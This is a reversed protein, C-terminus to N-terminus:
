NYVENLCFPYMIQFTASNSATASRQIANSVLDTAVDSNDVRGATSTLWVKADDAGTAVDGAFSGWIGFWGFSTTANVAAQAIAVAGKSNAVTRTTVHAEDYVVWDEAVLSAVGKLYIYENGNRAKSRTGLRFRKTTDVQNYRIGAGSSDNTAAPVHSM